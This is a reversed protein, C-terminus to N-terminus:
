KSLRPSPRGSEPLRPVSRSKLALRVSERAANLVLFGFDYAQDVDLHITSQGHIVMDVGADTAM